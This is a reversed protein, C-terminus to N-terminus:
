VVDSDMLSKLACIGETVERTMNGMSETFARVYANELAKRTSAHIDIEESAASRFGAFM